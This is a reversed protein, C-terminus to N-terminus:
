KDFIFRDVAFSFGNEDYSKTVFDAVKKLSDVGNEMAVGIKAAEIMKIDNEQDGIAMCEELPVQLYQALISLANGKNALRHGIDLFNHQSQIPYLEEIRSLLERVKNLLETNEEIVLIKIVGNKLYQKFESKEIVTVKFAGIRSNLKLEAKKTSIIGDITYILFDLEYHDCIEIARLATVEDILTQYIVKEKELDYIYAGNSCIIPYRIVGLKKVIEKAAIIHRGTAVTFIYGEDNLRRITDLTEKTVHQNGILTGDLDAIILKM